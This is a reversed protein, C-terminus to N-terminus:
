TCWLLYLALFAYIGTGLFGVNANEMGTLINNLFPSAATGNSTKIAIYLLSYIHFLFVDIVVM